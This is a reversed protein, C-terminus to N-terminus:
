EDAAEAGASAHPFDEGRGQWEEWEDAWQALRLVWYVPWGCACCVRWTWPGQVLFFTVLMLLGYGLMDVVKFRRQTM